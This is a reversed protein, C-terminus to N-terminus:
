KEAPPIDGVTNPGTGLIWYDARMRKGVFPGSQSVLEGGKVRYAVFAVSSYALQRTSKLIALEPTLLPVNGAAEVGISGSVAVSPLGLLFEYRDIGVGGTRPEVVVTAEERTETLRVGEKLMRARLEALLFTFDQNPRTRDIIQNKIGSSPPPDGTLYATELYVLQDRLGDMSLANIAESISGSILFQETATRPPDTVRVTTCGGALLLFAIVPVLAVARGSVTSRLARIPSLLLWSNTCDRLCHM